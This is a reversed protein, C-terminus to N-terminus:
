SVEWDDFVEFPEKEEGDEEAADGEVDGLGEEAVEEFDVHGPAGRGLFDLVDGKEFFDRPQELAEFEREYKAEAHHGHHNHARRHHRPLPPNLIEHRNIRQARNNNTM